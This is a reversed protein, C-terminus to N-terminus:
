HHPEQWCCREVTRRKRGPNRTHETYESYHTAFVTPPSPLICSYFWLGPVMRNTKSLVTPSPVKKDDYRAQPMLSSQKMAISKLRDRLHKQQLKKVVKKWRLSSKFTKAELTLGGGGTARWTTWLRNQFDRSKGNRHVATWAISEKIPRM